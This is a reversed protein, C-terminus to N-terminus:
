KLVQLNLSIESLGWNKWFLTDCWPHSAPLPFVKAYEVFHTNTRSLFSSFLLSSKALIGFSTLLSWAGMIGADTKLCGCDLVAGHVVARRSCSSISYRVALLWGPQWYGRGWTSVVAWHPRPILDWHNSFDLGAPTSFNWRHMWLILCRASHLVVGWFHTGKGPLLCCHKMCTNTYTVELYNWTIRKSFIAMDYESEQTPDAIGNVNFAAQSSAHCILYKWENVFWLHSTPYMHARLHLSPM